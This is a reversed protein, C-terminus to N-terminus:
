KDGEIGVDINDAMYRIIELGSGDVLLLKALLELGMAIQINNYKGPLKHNLISKRIDNIVNFLKDDKLDFEDILEQLEEKSLEM